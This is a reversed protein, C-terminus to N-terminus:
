LLNLCRGITLCESSDLVVTIDPIENYCSSLLIVPIPLGKHIDVAFLSIPRRNLKMVSNPGRMCVCKRVCMCARVRVCVCVCACVCVSVFTGSIM